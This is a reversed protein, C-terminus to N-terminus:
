LEQSWVWLFVINSVPDIELVIHEKTKLIGLLQCFDLFGTIRFIPFTKCKIIM